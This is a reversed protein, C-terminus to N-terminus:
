RSFLQLVKWGQLDCISQLQENTKGDLAARIDESTAIDLWKFNFTGDEDMFSSVPEMTVDGDAWTTRYVRDGEEDAEFAEVLTVIPEVEAPPQAGFGSSATYIDIIKHNDNIARFASVLFANEGDPFPYVATRGQNVDCGHLLLEFLWKSENAPMSYTINVELDKYYNMESFSAFAADLVVQPALEPHDKVFRGILRRAAERASVKNGPIYPEFDLLCPMEQNATRCALGYSMQGNPHPKRPIFVHVPSEGLYEYVSEDVVLRGGPLWVQRARTSLIKCLKDLDIDM